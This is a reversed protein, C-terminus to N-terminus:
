RWAGILKTLAGVVSLNGTAIAWGLAFAIPIGIVVTVLVTIHFAHDCARQGKATLRLGFLRVEMEPSSTVALEAPV